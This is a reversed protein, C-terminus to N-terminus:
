RNIDPRVLQLVRLESDMWETSQLRSPSATIMATAQITTFVFDKDGSCLINQAEDMLTFFPSVVLFQIAVM